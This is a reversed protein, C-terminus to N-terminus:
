KFRTKSFANRRRGCLECLVFRFPLSFIDFIRATARRLSFNRGFRSYSVHLRSVPSGSPPFLFPVTEIGVTVSSFQSTANRREENVFREITKTNLVENTMLEIGDIKEEKREAGEGGRDAKSLM